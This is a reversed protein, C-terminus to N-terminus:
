DTGNNYIKIPSSCFVTIEIFHFTRFINGKPLDSTIDMTVINM